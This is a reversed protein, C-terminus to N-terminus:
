EQIFRDTQHGDADYVLVANEQDPDNISYQADNSNTKVSYTTYSGLPKVIRGGKDILVLANSGDNPKAAALNTQFPEIAEYTLPIQLKGQLDIAGSLEGKRVVAMGNSFPQVDDYALKFPQLTGQKDLFAYTQNKRNQMLLPQEGVFWGIASFGAPNLKKGTLDYADRQSEDVSTAYLYNDHFEVGGFRPPLIEKGAVTYAGYAPKAEYTKEGLRAVFVGNAVQPNVFKMPLTFARKKLSYVGSPGNTERQVVLLDDDIQEEIGDFPLAKFNSTGPQFAFYKVELEDGDESVVKKGTVVRYIGAIDTYDISEYMPKIKWAGSADMFGARESKREYAVYLDQRPARNSVELETSSVHVPEYVFVEVRTPTAEYRYEAQVSRLASPAPRLSVALKELDDQLQQSDKFRSFDSQTNLLADYLKRLSAVEEDSPLSSSNSSTSRLANGSASIGQVAYLGTAPTSLILAASNDELSALQYSEGKDFTVKPHDKDLVVKRYGPSTRYSVELTVKDIPKATALPTPNSFSIGDEIADDPKILLDSAAQETGDRFYVRKYTYTQVSAGDPTEAKKWIDDLASTDLRLRSAPAAIGQSFSVSAPALAALAATVDQTTFPVVPEAYQPEAPQASDTAAKAPVIRLSLSKMRAITNLSDRSDVILYNLRKRAEALSLTGIDDLGGENLQEATFTEGSILGTDGEKMVFGYTLGGIVLMAVVLGSLLATKGTITKM